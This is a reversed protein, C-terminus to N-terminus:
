EPISERGLNERYERFRKRYLPHVGYPNLECLPELVFMRRTLEPHPIILDERELVLDDFLLIDLDLTRPGWHIKRERHANQELEQVKALLEEPEYLTEFGFVTNLFKDQELYGYPETEIVSAARFNRIWGDACLAEQAQTLYAQRDGMNSGAGVYVM